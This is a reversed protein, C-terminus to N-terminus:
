AIVTVVDSPKGLLRHIPCAKAIELLRKHQEPDIEGTFILECYFTNNGSATQDGKILTVKAKINEINWQKRNIYMRLTIVTCSALSMCIFDGPSPGLDKGNSAPLEDAILVHQNVTLKTEYLAGNNEAEAAAVIKTQM